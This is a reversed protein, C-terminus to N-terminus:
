RYRRSAIAFGVLYLLPLCLWAKRYGWAAPLEIALGMLGLTMLLITCLPFAIALAELHIRRKLEDLARLHLVFLALFVGGALAPLATLLLTQWPTLTWSRLAHLALLYCLVWITGVGALAAPSGGRHELDRRKM